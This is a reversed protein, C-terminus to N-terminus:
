EGICEKYLELLDADATNYYIDTFFLRAANYLTDQDSNSMVSNVLAEVMMIKTVKTKPSSM